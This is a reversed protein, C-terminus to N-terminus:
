RKLSFHGKITKGGPFEVVYWYDDSPMPHGNYTGDWEYDQLGAGLQKLFKGYRDYIRVRVGSNFQPSTGKVGWVDNFGDGNPTFFNPIGLVAIVQSVIACGNLDHVYVTHLGAPVNPFFNSAQFANPHDLSYVYNGYSASGLIVTVTNTSSMDTIIIDEIIAESSHIVPVFRTKSCGNADTVLVSYFAETSITLTYDNEGPMVAGNMYWQYTYDAPDSGDLLAADITTVFNPANVCVVHNELELNADIDPLPNVKIRIIYLRACDNDSEIRAIVENVDYAVPNVYSTPDPIANQELLADNENEYYRITQTPSVPIGATTLNFAFFGDEIGDTDCQEPMNVIPSPLLNVQLNLTSFNFCGTNNDIVKVTLVQPNSVNTYELPLPDVGSEADAVSLHFTVDFTPDNETFLDIVQNLNFLTIGDPAAGTDCQVLTESTSDPLANISLVANASELGCINGVKNLLVRYVYGNMSFDANNVTLTNTLVGNYTTNDTLNTFNTGGNTSVQWQYTVGANTDITFVAQRRECVLVDQPQTNIVIPTAVVYNPNPVTYGGAGVVIGNANVNPPSANGLFGDNNADSFGAERVDSCNDNDADLEVYDFIGDSDSDTVIYNIVGSETANELFNALGNSGFTVGEIVGNNNPDPANSGSETLDYIGDNDSDLDLYDLVGDGDTDAVTMGEFINDLGDGNDDVNSLPSFNDGQSEYLDPIGDNDSDFDIQDPVGDGDSDIPICSALVRFTARNDSDTVLNKHTFIVANVLYSRFSFTGTGAALPTAGNRRFRIEFSSFETVDSEYIGDYNTDILLQNNPNLVTITKDVPVSIIYDGNSNILDTANATQPYEISISVPNAFDMRYIMSNGKGATVHSVFNGNASGTFPDAAPPGAAPPFSGTFTNVFGGSSVSGALPNSLNFPANGASEDCNTIGDNDNDIDVNDNVMDGDMDGACDSVPIKDSILGTTCGIIGAEVHYYGPATPQYVNTNAGMIPADNYYWQFSDFATVSSVSLSVNPICNEQAIDLRNFVVEPKFTFGSYYGGFTAAESSGYSALYLEGTSFVSVNGTLGTITYTTYDANGPVTMPGVLAVGAPLDAVTHPTGNIIFSLTSGTKTVLTIRGVFQRTGIAQILPINDIVKPTECSLPPVFFLEQNAQDPRGNDGISQYAFINKSAHIYLNGNASYTTGGTMVYQGANLTAFPAAEGNRFLETNDENAILLVREVEDQGTSKIFIFDKGTREASVIQDFGLDLNSMSGNTGGYSGCNVAIPKDATVKSGILALRNTSTPGQVAVIYSEGANLTIPALTGSLPPNVFAANPDIDSFSVTTNNETALVSIFTYHVNNYDAVANNLFGGIRFEQGLAALGKSVIMGAQNTNGAIVRATVYVLDEAEVIFGKNNHIEGVQFQSVNLQTNDGIGVNYVFPTDRSVTGQVVTGGINVIRFNVPTLSPCSIYLFQEEPFVSASSSLPPIYHTKSSQAYPFGFVLVALLLLLKKM